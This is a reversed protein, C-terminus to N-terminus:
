RGIAGSSSSNMFFSTIYGTFQKVSEPKFYSIVFFAAAAIVAILIVTIAVSKLTHRAARLSKSQDEVAINRSSDNNGSSKLAQEVANQERPKVTQKAQLLAEEIDNEEWGSASLIKKIQEESVGEEIYSETYDLLDKSIM